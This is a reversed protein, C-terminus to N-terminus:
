ESLVPLIKGVKDFTEKYESEVTSDAVLGGGAWCYIQGQECILTRITISSDMNGCASLYAISGCYVSRRHPELEEIIEMARIKPAGTISGGPFAARLLDTATKDDSLKGEVTSVLHHVAPFSEVDFLHPVVVSGAECVRSLDNRLLDVIMLNEARDKTSHKLAQALEVDQAQNNHRPRTGKIPKTQVKGDSLRLFREPSISLVVNNNTKIFASFPAKNEARLKLYASLEDGQYSAAFRQALNIQYCDGSLLYDQVQNFKDQYQAKSMNAQWQSTLSFNIREPETTVDTYSAIAHTITETLQEVDSNLCVVYYAAQHRDYILANTYIGVAMDPANIDKQACQPLREFARGLDYSFYGVAGGHFPLHSKEITIHEFIKAQIQELLALPDGTSSANVPANEDIGYQVTTVDDVTTLTVLPSFVVIDFQSDVHESECSDLWMAWDTNALSAFVATSGIHPEISFPHVSLTDNISPLLNLESLNIM